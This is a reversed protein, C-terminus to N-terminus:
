AKAYSVEQSKLLFALEEFHEVIATSNALGWYIVVIKAGCPLTHEEYCGIERLLLNIPQRDCRHVLVKASPRHLFSVNGRRIFAM